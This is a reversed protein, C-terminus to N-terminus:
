RRLEFMKERYAADLSTARTSLQDVELKREGAEASRATLEMRKNELEDKLGESSMKLRLNEELMMKLQESTSARQGSLANMSNNLGVTQGAWSGLSGGDTAIEQLRDARSIGGVPLTADGM